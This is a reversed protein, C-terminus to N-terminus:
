NYRILASNASPGVKRAFQRRLKIFHLLATGLRAQGSTEFHSYNHVSNITDRFPTYRFPSAGFRGAGWSRTLPSEDRTVILGIDYVLWDRFYLEVEFNGIDIYKRFLKFEVKVNNREIYVKMINVIRKHACRLLQGFRIAHLSSRIYVCM